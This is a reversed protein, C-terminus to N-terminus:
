WLGDLFGVSEINRPALVDVRAVEEAGRTVVVAGVVQGQTVPARVQGPLRVEVSLAEAEERSVLLRIGDAARGRFFPESGSSVSVQGGVEAGARLPEVIRYTEFGRDLLRSAEGLSSRKGAAGMVVAVLDLGDRSATATVGFGALNTFGTKLGTIGEYWHLLWNTTRLQFTGERFPAEKKGAWTWVEPYARLAIAVKALDRPSMRDVGQGPGPPLGHPSHIETETLGLSTAKANMRAVFGEVSGGVHEAVAVAADNASGVLIAELLAALPFREGEALWVQTGGMGEARKSAVVTDQLSVEGAAVADMAVLVTLTKVMSATPWSLTENQAFLVQGTTAEVLVAARYPRIGGVDPTPEPAAPARVSGLLIVAGM